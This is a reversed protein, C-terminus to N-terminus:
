GRALGLLDFGERFLEDLHPSVDVGRAIIQSIAPADARDGLLIAGVVRGNRIVAKKYMGNASDRVEIFGPQEPNVEGISTLDVGSVKLTTSPVIEEYMFDVDGVLQAAAVRAQALAVPIIAWAVGNFEAVDGVAYVDPASTRMREDVIVGRNCAIGAEQALAINSRVGASVVMMEAPLVKGSKLTLRQVHGDGEIATCVDGIAFHLGQAALEAQLVAAGDRDLQRPLLRPLAEVVTIDLGHALLAWSTDLGLLGGGLVVAHRAAAARECLAMGDALTRLTHVGPLDAGPIPPVWSSAGMALVLRDYDHVTGDQFVVQHEQPRIAVVQCGLRVQIGRQAYWSEPYQPMAEPKVRCAVLDILRPRPYYHVSEQSCLTIEIAPAREAVLRATTAGSVGNGVIFLKM